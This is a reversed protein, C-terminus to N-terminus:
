IKPYCVFYKKVTKELVTHNLMDSADGIDKLEGTNYLINIKDDDTSYANNSISNNIVIYDLENESIGPYEKHIHTKIEAIYSEDFVENKLEIRFLKRDIIGKSLLSLVKDNHFQWVKLATIIDNDDLLSFIDLVSKNDFEKVNTNFDDKTINEKLFFSLAPTAFLDEGKSTLYKARELVKILMQDAALNTKHLYVQWYMLRRAILFKEISYIGKAEVVLKDNIVNLMKIIRDSGIIGESVGTFFSDRKLYDLRDMDLQGSVMQHLFRKPYKDEFISVTDSLKGKYITNLKQMFLNSIFEHSVDKILTNELTHSFPGHGIDHLLIALTVARAEDDTIDNGKGRIVEIALSMLYMAGLAHQFRTHIAGPYVLYSLGLQKIRRLRQVYPHQLIDFVFEDPIKIFGYVPDNVIKKKNTNLIGPM